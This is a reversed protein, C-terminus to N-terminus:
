LQNVTVALTGVYKGAEWADEVHLEFAAGGQVRTRHRRFVVEVPTPFVLARIYSRAGDAAQLCGPTGDPATISMDVSIAAPDAGKPLVMWWVRPKERVIVTAVPPPSSMGGGRGRYTGLSIASGAPAIEASAIKQLKVKHVVHLRGVRAAPVLRVPLPRSGSGVQASASGPGLMAAVLATTVLLLSVAAM